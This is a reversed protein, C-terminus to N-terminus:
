LMKNAAHILASLKADKKVDEVTIIRTEEM